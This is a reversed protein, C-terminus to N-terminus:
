YTRHDWSISATSNIRGPECLHQTDRSFVTSINILRQSMTIAENGSCLMSSSESSSSPQNILSSRGDLLLDNSASIGTSIISCSWDLVQLCRCSPRLHHLRHQHKAATKDVVQQHLTLQVFSSLSASSSSGDSGSNGSSSRTATSPRGFMPFDVSILRKIPSFLCTIQSRGPVVISLMSEVISNFFM